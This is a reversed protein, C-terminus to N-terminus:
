FINVWVMIAYIPIGLSKTPTQFAIVAIIAIFFERSSINYKLWDTSQHDSLFERNYMDFFLLTFNFQFTTVTTLTVLSSKWGQLRLDIGLQKLKNKSWKKIAKSVILWSLVLFSHQTVQLSQCSFNTPSIWYNTHHLLILEFLSELWPRDVPTQV